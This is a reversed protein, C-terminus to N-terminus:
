PFEVWGQIKQNYFQDALHVSISAHLGSVVRYFIQREVCQEWASSGLATSEKGNSFCNEQYISQWVRNASPGSYGTFREPNEILDVYM